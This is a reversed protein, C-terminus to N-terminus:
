PSRTVKLTLDLKLDVLICETANQLVDREREASREPIVDVFVARLFCSGTWSSARAITIPITPSCDIGNTSRSAAANAKAAHLKHTASSSSHNLLVSRDIGPPLEKSM